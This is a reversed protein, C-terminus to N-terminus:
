SLYLIWNIQNCIIQIIKDSSCLYNASNLYCDIKFKETLFFYLFGNNKNTGFLLQTWINRFFRDETAEYYTSM